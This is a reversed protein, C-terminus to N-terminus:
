NAAGRGTATPDGASLELRQGLVICNYLARGIEARTMFRNSGPVEDLSLVVQTYADHVQVRLTEHEWVVPNSLDVDSVFRILRKANVWYVWADNGVPSLPALYVIPPGPTIDPIRQGEKGLEKRLAARMREVLAADPYDPQTRTRFLYDRLEDFPLTVVVCDRPPRAPPTIRAVNRIRFDRSQVKTQLEEITYDAKKVSVCIDLQPLVIEAFASHDGADLKPQVPRIWFVVGHAKAGSREVDQEDLYWRYLHRTIECLTAPELLRPPVVARPVAAPTRCGPVLGLLAVAVLLTAALKM